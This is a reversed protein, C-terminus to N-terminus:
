LAHAQQQYHRSFAIWDWRDRRDAFEWRAPRDRRGTLTLTWGAQLASETALL